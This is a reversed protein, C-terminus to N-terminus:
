QCCKNAVRVFLLHFECEESRFVQDQLSIGLKGLFFIPKAYFVKERSVTKSRFVLKRKFVSLLFLCFIKQSAIRGFDLFITEKPKGLFVNTKRGLVM